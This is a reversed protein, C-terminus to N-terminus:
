KFISRVLGSVSELKETLEVDRVQLRENEKKLITNTEKIQKLEQFSKNFSDKLGKIVEVSEEHKEELKQLKVRRELMKLSQENLLKEQTNIKDISFLKIRESAKLKELMSDIDKQLRNNELFLVNFESLLYIITIHYQKYDQYMLLALEILKPVANILVTKDTDHRLLSIKLDNSYQVVKAPILGKETYQSFDMEGNFIKLRNFLQFHLNFNDELDKVNLSNM